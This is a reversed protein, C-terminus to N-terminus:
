IRPFRTSQTLPSSTLSVSGQIEMMSPKERKKKQLARKDGQKHEGCHKHGQITSSKSLLDHRESKEGGSREKRLAHVWQLAALM